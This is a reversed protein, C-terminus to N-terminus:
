LGSEVEVWAGNTTVIKEYMNEVSTFLNCPSEMPIYCM